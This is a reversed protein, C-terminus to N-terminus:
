AARWQQGVMRGQAIEGRDILQDRAGPEGMRPRREGDVADHDAIAFDLHVLLRGCLVGNPVSRCKLFSIAVACGRTIITAGSDPWKEVSNRAVTRVM